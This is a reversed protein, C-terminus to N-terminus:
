SYIISVEYPTAIAGSSTNVSCGPSGIVTTKFAPSGGVCALYIMVVQTNETGSCTGIVGSGQTTVQIETGPALDTVQVSYPTNGFQYCNTTDPSCAGTYTAYSVKWYVTATAPTDCLPECECTASNFVATGQCPDGCSFAAGACPGSNCRCKPDCSEMSAAPPCPM